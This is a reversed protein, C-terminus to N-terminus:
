SRQILSDAMRSCSAHECHKTSRPFILSARNDHTNTHHNTPATRRLATTMSEDADESYTDDVQREHDSRGFVKGHSEVEIEDEAAM